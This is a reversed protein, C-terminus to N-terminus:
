KILDFFIKLEKKKEKSLLQWKLKNIAGEIAYLTVIGAKPDIEKVLLFVKESGMVKLDKETKVGAKALKKVLVVGINPLEILSNMTLLFNIALDIAKLSKLYNM